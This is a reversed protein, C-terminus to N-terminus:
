PCYCKSLIFHLSQLISDHNFDIFVNVEDFFYTKGPIVKPYSCHDPIEMFSPSPLARVTGGRGDVELVSSFVISHLSVSEVTRILM